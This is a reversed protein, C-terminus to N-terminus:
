CVEGVALLGGGDWEDREGDEGGEDPEGDSQVGLAVEGRVVVEEEEREEVEADGGAEGVM